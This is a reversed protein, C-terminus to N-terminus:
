EPTAGRPKLTVLRSVPVKLYLNLKVTTRPTFLLMIHTLSSVMSWVTEAKMVGLPAICNLEPTIGGPPVKETTRVTGPCYLYVQM